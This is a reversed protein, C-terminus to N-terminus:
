DTGNDKRWNAIIRFGQGNEHIFRITGGSATVNEEMTGLGFGKEFTGHFSGNDTVNLEMEEPFLSVSIMLRDALSHSLTNHYAERCIRLILPYLPKAFEPETGLISLEVPFQCVQVFADLMERISGYEQEESQKRAKKCIRIGQHLLEHYQKPDSDKLKLCMQCISHIATVAHGSGDHIVRALRIQESYDSLAKVQMAYSELEQNAQTQALILEKLEGNVTQRQMMIRMVDSIDTLSVVYGAVRNDRSVPTTKRLFVQEGVSLKGERTEMFDSIFRALHRGKKMKRFPECRNYDLIYGYSDTIFYTEPLMRFIEAQVNM